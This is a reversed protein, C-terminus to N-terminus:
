ATNTRNSKRAPSGGFLCYFLACVTDRIRQAM